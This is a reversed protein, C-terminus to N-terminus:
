WEASLFLLTFENSLLNIYGTDTILTYVTPSLRGLMTLVANVKVTAATGPGTLIEDM